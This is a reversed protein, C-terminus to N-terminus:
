IHTIKNEESPIFSFCIGFADLDEDVMQEIVKETLLVSTRADVAVQLQYLVGDHIRIPVLTAGIVGHEHLVKHAIALIRQVADLDETM